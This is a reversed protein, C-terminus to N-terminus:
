QLELQGDRMRYHRNAIRKIQEKSHSVWIIPAQQKAAYEKILLEVRETNEADLNGTPEDLLLCAPQNVLCRLLGLRQREGSSCRSVEWAWTAPTFGLASLWVDNRTVFHEQISDYWWAPEAPLLMVQKRWQSARLSIASVEGLHCEGEHPLMDAIARLLLSKGAGSGGSLCVIEGANITLDVPGVHQIRLQKLTLDNM